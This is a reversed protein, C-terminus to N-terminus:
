KRRKTTRQPRKGSSPSAPHQGEKMRRLVDALTNGDLIRATADRVDKMVIRIGCTAEDACEDCRRYATLSVCPLLALPGDIIRIVQGMTISDPAKNLAYGGGKGKKSQLLGSKKLELLILELFKKPIGEERAIDAILMPRGDYEVALRLMAKLAYKAKRSLM